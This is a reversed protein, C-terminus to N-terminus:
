SSRAREAELRETAKGPVGGLRAAVAYLGPVLLLTILTAGVIGAMVVTGIVMRSESGPGVALALPVAGSFTAISTMLVPRFRARAAEVIAQRREIGAARRQNAFDIVLIGNKALLGVVLLLGIQSFVNFSQGTVWLAALGTTIALPVTVMVVLPYVFSEFLAALVLYIVVLALGFVLGTRASSTTFEESLGLWSIAAEAPLQDRAIGGMAEIMSGLDAGEAPVASIVM